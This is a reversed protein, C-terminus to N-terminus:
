ACYTIIPKDRPLEALRQRLTDLPINIAGAIHSVDYTGPDRVDVIVAKGAERLAAAEDIPIRRIQRSDTPIAAEAPHAEAPTGVPAPLAPPAPPSAPAPQPAPTASGAPTSAAAPAAAAVDGDDLPRGAHQCGGCGLAALVVLLAFTSRM